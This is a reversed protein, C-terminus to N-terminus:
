GAALAPTASADFLRQYAAWELSQETLQVLEAALAEAQAVPVNRCVSLFPGAVVYEDPGVVRRFAARVARIMARSLPHPGTADQLTTLDLQVTAHMRRQWVYVYPRKNAKCWQAFEGLTSSSGPGQVVIYGTAKASAFNETRKSTNM